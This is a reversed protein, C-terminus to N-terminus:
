AVSRPRSVGFDLNLNANNFSPARIAKARNRSTATLSGIQAGLGELLGGVDTVGDPLNESGVGGASYILQKADSKQGEIDNRFTQSADVAGGAVKGLNGTLQEKLDGFSRAAASSRLNSADAYGYTTDKRAKDYGREVQPAFQQTFAKEFEGFFNDDFGAYAGDVEARGKDMLKQRGEAYARAADAKSQQQALVQGREAQRTAELERQIAEQRTIESTRAETQRQERAADETRRRENETQQLTLQEQYRRNEDARRAAEMEQQQALLQRFREAEAEAQRRAEAEQLSTNPQSTKKSSFLGM